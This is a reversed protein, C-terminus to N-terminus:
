IHLTYFVLFFQINKFTNNLGLLFFSQLELDVYHDIPAMPPAIARGPTSQSHTLHQKAAAM